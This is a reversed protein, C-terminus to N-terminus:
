LSIDIELLINNLLSIIIFPSLKIFTNSIGYYNYCV